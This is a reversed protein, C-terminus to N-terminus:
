PIYATEVGSITVTDNSGPTEFVGDFTVKMTALGTTETAPYEEIDLISVTGSKSFYQKQVGNDMLTVIMFSDNESSNGFPNASGNEMRVVLQSTINTFGIIISYEKLNQNPYKAYTATANDSSLEDQFTMGDFVGGTLQYEYSIKMAEAITTPDEPTNKTDDDSSCSVLLATALFLILSIPKKM